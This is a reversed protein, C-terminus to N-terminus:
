YDTALVIVEWATNAAAAHHMSFLITDAANMRIGMPIDIPITQTTTQDTTQSPCAVEQWLRTDDQTTAGSTKTSLYVRGVTATTATAATSGVPHLRLRDIYAGNAGATYALLIDTGITGTGDNKTNATTSSKWTTGGMQPTTGFLPTTAM